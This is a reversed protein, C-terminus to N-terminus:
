TKDTKTGFDGAAKPPKILSPAIATPDLDPVDMKMNFKSSSTKPKIDQQLPDNNSIVQHKKDAPQSTITARSEKMIWYFVLIVQIVAILAIGLCFCALTILIWIVTDYM